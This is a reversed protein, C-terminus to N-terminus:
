PYLPRKERLEVHRSIVWLPCGTQQLWLHFRAAM